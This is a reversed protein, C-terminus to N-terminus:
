FLLYLLFFAIFFAFTHLYLLLYIRKHSKETKVNDPKKLVPRYLPLLPLSCIVLWLYRMPLFGLEKIGIVSNFCALFYTIGGVVISAYFLKKIKPGFLVITSKYGKQEEFSASMMRYIGYGGFQFSTIMILPLLPASLNPVFLVWGSYFRFLPNILSGSILDVFARRKFEFPRMTYLLHNILMASLCIALLNNITIAIAFAAVILLISFLLAFNASVKGSPIPRHKKFPHSADDHRDTYDNLAYLGSWFFFLAIAGKAFLIFDFSINYLFGAFVIAVIMNGLSKSWELPRMLEILGRILVLM